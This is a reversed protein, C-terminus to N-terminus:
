PAEFNVLQDKYFRVKATVQQGTSPRRGRYTFVTDIWRKLSPDTLTPEGLLAIVEDQSMGKELGQWLGAEMWPFNVQQERVQIASVVKDVLTEGGSATYAAESDASVMVVQEAVAGALDGELESVRTELQEVSAHLKQLEALILDLKEDSTEEAALSLGALMVATMVIRAKMSQMFLHLNGRQM